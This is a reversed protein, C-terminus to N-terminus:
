TFIQNVASQPTISKPVVLGLKDIIIQQNHCINARMYVPQEKTAQKISSWQMQDITKTLSHYQLGTTNRLYNLFTYALFCLCIHAQIRKDTWHYMPRIEIQSKLARFAHEVEFLDSYKNLIEDIPLTTSTAIAKFGDYKADQDIRDQDIALAQTQKDKDIYKGAGRKTVQKYQSPSSVWNQAKEILKERAHADKRARKASYTCVIRRGQYSLEKYSAIEKAAGPIATHKTVDILQDSITKPLNKIRDGIIYDLKNEILYDRNTKDIMASDAVVVVKGLNYKKKLDDLADLLTKGEYTNGQYVQYSIPNRLKDVLLGLVVQIKHAKGDKSYGKQRLSDPIEKQSDFYLTTVDYFVVDLNQSFLNKQQNLLHEKLSEKHTDLIDLFRYFHHLDIPKTGFGMYEEQQRCSRLKSCPDNIREAILYEFIQQWDFTVKTKINVRRAWKDLNFKKWIGKIVLAYGYNYRGLEQIHNELVEDLKLGALELLKSAIAQLQPATYDEQKGLSYLTRHKAKGDTKYSEVIRLYTGSKKKEVRLFAM